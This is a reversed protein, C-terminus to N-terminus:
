GGKEKTGKQPKDKNGVIEPDMIGVKKPDMNRWCKEEPTWMRELIKSVM